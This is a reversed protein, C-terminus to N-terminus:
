PGKFFTNKNTNGAVQKSYVKSVVPTILNQAGNVPKFEGATSTSSVTGLRCGETNRLHRYQKM